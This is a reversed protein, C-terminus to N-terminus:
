VPNVLQALGLGTGGGFPQDDDDEDEKRRRPENQPEPEEIDPEFDQEEEEGPLLEGLKPDFSYGQEMAQAMEIGFVSPRGEKRDFLIPDATGGRGHHKRIRGLLHGGSRGRSSKSRRLPKNFLHRVPHKVGLRARADFAGQMFSPNVANTPTWGRMNLRRANAIRRRKASPERAARSAVAGLNGIHLENGGTNTAVQRSQNYAAAAAQGQELAPQGARQRGVETKFRNSSWGPPSFRACTQRAVPSLSFLVCLECKSLEACASSPIHWIVASERNGRQGM